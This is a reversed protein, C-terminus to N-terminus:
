LKHATNFFTAHSEVDRTTLTTGSVCYDMPASGSAYVIRSGSVTYAQPVTPGQGLLTESCVCDGNAFSCTAASVFPRGTLSGQFGTCANASLTVSLGATSNVCAGSYAVTAEFTAILNDTENGSSFSATGAMSTNATQIQGCAPFPAGPMAMLYAALDGEVCTGDMQWTGDLTGGCPAAANCTGANGSSNGGCGLVVAGLVISQVWFALNRETPLIMACIEVVPLPCGNTTDGNRPLRARPICPASPKATM